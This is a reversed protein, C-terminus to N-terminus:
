DIYLVYAFTNLYQILILSKSIGIFIQSIEPIALCNSFYTDQIYTFYTVLRTSIKDNKEKM